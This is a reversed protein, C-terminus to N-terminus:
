ISLFEPNDQLYRVVKEDALTMKEAGINLLTKMFDFYAEITLSQKCIHLTKSVQRGLWAITDQIKSEKKPVSLRIEEGILDMFKQYYDLRTTAKYGISSKGKHNSKDRFDVASVAISGMLKQLITEFDGNSNEFCKKLMESGVNLHKDNILRYWDAMADMRNSSVDKNLAITDVDVGTRVAHLCHVFEREINALFAFVVRSYGRKFEAEFRMCKSKHDYVRVMKGSNRSGYYDTIALKEGCKGSSVQRYSKFRFNDGIAASHRMQEVPILSYTPDDIAIDIRSCDAKYRCKLGQLIRWQDIVTKGAFYQGSFDLMLSVTNLENDVTYGGNIGEPSTITNEYWVSGAGATWPIDPRIGIYNGGIFNLLLEFDELPLNHITRLYDLHVTIQPNLNPRTNGVGDKQALIMNMQSVITDLTYAKPLTRWSMKSRLAM